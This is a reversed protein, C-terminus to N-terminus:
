NKLPFKKIKPLMKKANHKWSVRMTMEYFYLSEDAWDEMIHVKSRLLDDEPIIRKEPFAEDLAYAIDTSDCFKNGDIDIAPFKAFPSVDRYQKTKLRNVEEINYDLGKFSLIRSVKETFPSSSFQYLTLM